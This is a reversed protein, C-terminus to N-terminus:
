HVAARAMVRGILVMEPIRQRFAGIAADIPAQEAAPGIPGLGLLRVANALLTRHADHFAPCALVPTCSDAIHQLLAPWIALHVWLSPRVGSAAAPGAAALRDICDRLDADLADYRPLPPVEGAAPEAPPPAAGGTPAPNGARVSALVTMALLNWCNGREYARIVDLTQAPELRLRLGEALDRREIQRDAAQLLPGMASAIRPLSSCAVTWAWPLAGDVTALHRWIFNVVPTGQVRKIRDYLTALEGTARDASIEPLM